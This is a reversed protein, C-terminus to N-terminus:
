IKYPPELNDRLFELNERMSEHYINLTMGSDLSKLDKYFHFAALELSSRLNPSLIQPLIINDEWTRCYKFSNKYAQELQLHHGSIPFRNRLKM